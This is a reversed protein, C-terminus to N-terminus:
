VGTGRVLKHNAAQAVPRLTVLDLNVHQPAGLAYAIVDACDEATLPQAVGEYVADAKARDGGLRVLSFEETRVLGPAIEIVRIPEGALELRLAGAIMHEGAKAANYGGGGEYAAQAATSTLLLLSGAGSARVAPLLARIVRVTGAVNIEFMRTYRDLDAHEVTDTGLAGGAIAAVANLRGGWLEDVKERLREVSADDTIDVGLTECGIEAALSVLREERRSVALVQWGDAALRVATARGIGSTAGTVVVTPREPRAPVPPTQQPM